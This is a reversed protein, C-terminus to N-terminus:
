TQVCTWMRCQGELSSGLFSRYIWCRSRLVCRLLFHSRAVIRCRGSWSRLEADIWRRRTRGVQVRLVQRTLMVSLLVTVGTCSTHSLCCTRGHGQLISVLIVMMIRWMYLRVGLYRYIWGYGRRARGVWRVRGVGLLVVVHLVLTVRRRAIRWVPRLLVSSVWVPQWTSGVARRSGCYGSRTRSGSSSWTRALNTGRMRVRGDVNSLRCASDEGATEPRSTRALERHEAVCAGVDGSRPFRACTCIHIALNRFPKRCTSGDSHM